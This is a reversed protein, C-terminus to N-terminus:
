RAAPGAPGAQPPRRRPRPRRQARRAGRPRVASAARAVSSRASRSARPWSEAARSRTTARPAGARSPRPRSSAQVSRTVQADPWTFTRSCAPPPRRGRPPRRRARADALQGALQAGLQGAGPDLRAGAATASEAAEATVPASAPALAAVLRTASRRAWAASSAPLCRAAWSSCCTACRSPLRSCALCNGCHSTLSASSSRTAAAECVRAASDLPWNSRVWSLPSRNTMSWASASARRETRVRDPPSVKWADSASASARDDCIEASAAAPAARSSEM